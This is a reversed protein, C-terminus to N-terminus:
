HIWRWATLSVPHHGNSLHPSRPEWFHLFKGLTLLALLIRASDKGGEMKKEENGCDMRKREDVQIWEDIWKDLWESGTM